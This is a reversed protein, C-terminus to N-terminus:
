KVFIMKRTTSENGVTLRYFYVGSANDGADFKVIYNGPAASGAALNTVKRGLLNFVDLSLSQGTMRSGITYSIITAPNFPNPYNQGLQFHYPLPIITIDDAVPTPSNARLFDLVSAMVEERTNYDYLTATNIIGEFGFGFFVLRYGATTAYISGATMGGNRYTFPREATSSTLEFWDVSSQNGAGDSGTIMLQLSDGVDNGPVGDVHYHQQSSGKFRVKLYGLLFTSDVTLRLQEAIDQGSLFLRGDQDLHNKLFGVEAASMQDGGKDGTFWIIYPYELQTVGPTGSIAIDWYDYPLYLSDLASTYYSSRDIKAAAPSDDADVLLIEVGGVLRYETALFTDPSTATTITLDFQANVPTIDYDITFDFPDNQNSYEWGSPMMSYSAQCINFNLGPVPSGLTATVSLATKWLNKITYVVEIREGADFAGDNNGYTSDSFSFDLVVINPRSYTIDLNCTITKADNDERIDWVSVENIQNDVSNTNPTTLSTFELGAGYLGPFPDTQDGRNVANDLDFLGDAQELAVHLHSNYDLDNSGTLNDDCHWILLGHGPLGQDFGTPQRNEILFYEKGGGTPLTLRYRVSDYTASGLVVDVLNSGVTITQGFTGYIADLTQKSWATLCAPRRGGGNWSGAGMLGWNGIGESIESIDYLDPLGLTHGFEHCYVGIRAITGLVEEPETSYKRVTVGDVYYGGSIQWAHSWIHLTDNPSNIEEAGPGAHVVFIGEVTGDGNNDYLSFDVDADAAAVADRAMTQANPQAFQTGYQGGHYEAYTLPLRYWGVVDGEILLRGYSNELYFDTLSGFQTTGRSFLIEEFDAATAGSVQGGDAPNDSFDVLIVLVRLTLTDGTALSSRDLQFKPPQLQFAGGVRMQYLKRSLEDLKGEARYQEIVHPAPAVAWATSGIVFFLSVAIVTLLFMDTRNM